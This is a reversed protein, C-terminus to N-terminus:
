QREEFNKHHGSLRRDKRSFWGEAAATLRKGAGNLFFALIFSLVLYLLFVAIYLKRGMSCNRIGQLLRSVLVHHVLFVAFSEKALASVINRGKRFFLREPRALLDGLFLLLIFIGLSLPLMVFRRDFPTKWLIAAAAIIGSVPAAAEPLKKKLGGLYLGAMFDALYFIVDNDTHVVSKAFYIGAIKIVALLVLFIVPQKKRLLNLAPAALYFLIVAGTFWEGLLYFTKVGHAALYGDIGFLTYVMRWGPLIGEPLMVLLYAAFYATYYLPFISLFRKRYFNACRATRKETKDRELSRCAMYGSLILFLSSGLEGIGVNRGFDTVFWASRIGFTWLEMNFHYFVVLLMALLRILDPGFLRGEAASQREKEMKEGAETDTKRRIM